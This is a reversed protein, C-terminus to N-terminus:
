PASKLELESIRRELLEIQKKQYLIVDSIIGNGFYMSSLGLDSRLEALEDDKDCEERARDFYGM